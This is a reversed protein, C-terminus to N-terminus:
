KAHRTLVVIPRDIAITEWIQWGDNVLENLEVELDEATKSTTVKVEQM